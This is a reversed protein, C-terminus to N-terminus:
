SALSVARARLRLEEEEDQEKQAAEAEAQKRKEEEAEAVARAAEEDAAKNIETITEADLEQEAPAQNKETPEEAPPKLAKAVADTLGDLISRVLSKQDIIQPADEEAVEDIAKVEVLTPADAKKEVRYAKEFAARPVITGAPTRTWEDLVLEIAQLALAGDGGAAKALALPNAPVSCISCELLEWENFQWGGWPDDKDVPEWDKIMFGISCARVMGAALLRSVEDAKDTTEPPALTATGEMRKPTGSIVKIDGWMGIPASRSDHAWLVVPNNNFDTLDGGKAVVIDGYRDEVQATMIFRCSRSEEDWTAPAKYVKTLMDGKPGSKVSFQRKSFIEDLSAKNTRTPM